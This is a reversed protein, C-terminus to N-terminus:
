VYGTSTACVKRSNRIKEHLVVARRTCGQRLSERPGRICLTARKQGEKYKEILMRLAFM